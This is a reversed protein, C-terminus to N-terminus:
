SEFRLADIAALMSARRAPVFGFFVGILTSVVFSFVVSFWSIPLSLGDPLLFRTFIPLLIAFGIGVIAGGGSIIAAELLFQLQIEMRTAGVVKLIGIEQTRQTVTLLMINMIGIGSLLLAVGAIALLVLSLADAITNAASLLAALNEVNFNEGARHRTELGVRVANTVQPVDNQSMAQVYIGRLFDDGTFYEMLPLPMLVTENELETRDMIASPERFVGIITLDFEGIRVKKGIASGEGMRQGLDYSIVCVKDRSQADVSDFFRGALLTLNRISPYAETIGVVPVVRDAGGIHVPLLRDYIGAAYRVNPLEQIVRLDSTTIEDSRLNPQNPGPAYRRAYVLNSGAGEIVSQVYRKGTLGITVVVVLCASGMVVGLTTLCARLKNTRLGDVAVHWTQSCLM